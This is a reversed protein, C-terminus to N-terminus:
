IMGSNVKRSKTEFITSDWRKRPVISFKERSPITAQVNCEDKYTDKLSNFM